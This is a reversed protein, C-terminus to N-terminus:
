GGSILGGRIRCADSGVVLNALAAGLPACSRIVLLTFSSFVTKSQRLEQARYPSQGPVSGTMVLALAFRFLIERLAQRQVPVVRRAELWPHFRLFLRSLPIM